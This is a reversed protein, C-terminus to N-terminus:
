NDASKKRKYKLKTAEGGRIHRESLNVDLVDKVKYYLKRDIIFLRDSVDKHVTSKSVGFVKATARVTSGTKVIYEAEQKIRENLYYQM